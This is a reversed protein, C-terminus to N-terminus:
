CQFEGREGCQNCYGDESAYPSWSGFDEIGIVEWSHDCKECCLEQVSRRPSSMNDPYGM